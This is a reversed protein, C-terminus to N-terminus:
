TYDKYKEMIREREGWMNGYMHEANENMYNCMMRYKSTVSEVMKDRAKIFLFIEIPIAIIAIWLNVNEGFDYFSGVGILYISYLCSILLLFSLILAIMEVFLRKTLISFKHNLLKKRFGREWEIIPDTYEPSPLIDILMCQDHIVETASSGDVEYSSDYDDLGGEGHNEHEPDFKRIEDVATAVDCSFFERDGSIRYDSLIRFLEREVSEYDSVWGSYRVEFPLPVGTERLQRARFEPDNSTKGIKIVDPMAPNTMVYIWGKYPRRNRHKKNRSM